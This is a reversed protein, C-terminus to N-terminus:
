EKGGKIEKLNKEKSKANFHNTLFVTLPADIVFNTVCMALIALITSLTNRYNKLFETTKLLSKLHKEPLLSKLFRSKATTNTLSEIIYQSSGRVLIGSATGAIIKAITRNRSVERTDKDVKKNHYDIVPQTLMATTGMLIRNEMPRSVIDSFKNWAKRNAESDNFTANPLADLAKQKLHKIYKSWDKLGQMNVNNDCPQIYM